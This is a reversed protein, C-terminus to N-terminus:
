ATNISPIVPPATFDRFIVLVQGEKHITLQRSDDRLDLCIPSHTKIWDCGLVVDYGKLQLLRFQSSFDHQQIFYLTPTTVACTDL